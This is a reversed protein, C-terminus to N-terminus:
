IVNHMDCVASTFPCSCPTPSKRKRLHCSRAPARWRWMEHSDNTESYGILVLRPM